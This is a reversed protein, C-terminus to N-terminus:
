NGNGKKKETATSDSGLGLMELLDEVKSKTRYIEFEVRRNLKMDNATREDVVIPKQSGYGVANIRDTSIGGRIFLYEKIADARKQSLALNMAADGSSDTHGSVNLNFNPNDLLFNIVKDLDPEMEPLIEAMGNEFEVSSFEIKSSMRETTGEFDTDGELFFLEEIRFFDDGQIVLLYNRENILDFDFTGDARLFKPAVEVGKDLDIVSVIGKMPAGGADTLSGSFRTTAEPQGGMPLPFSFLDLNKMSEEESRSYYINSSESNISFYFETGPGNVLPGINVPESWRNADVKNSKYIDYDGFNLIHGNSSFYLVNFKPHFFPSVENGRSNIIPGLNQPIVWQDKSNQYTYYIDALGFGNGRDSSFYLTDENHSLTPHSDWGDSNVWGGMNEPESWATDGQYHSTYLDCNGFSDPAECRSFFLTKGNKTLTASGENYKTNINEMAEAAKWYKEKRAMFLDENVQTNIGDSLSNRNSTFILLSDNVAISPAYDEDRSNISRGMSMLVGRAPRLTDVQKRFEVLEYYYDLPVYNSKSTGNIEEYRKTIAEIDLGERHHKLVIRYFPKAAEKSVLEETLKALRWVLYTQYAFNRMGFNNVYERLLPYLEEWKEQRDLMRINDLKKQDHYYVLADYSPKRINPFDLQIVEIANSDSKSALKQVKRKKFLQAEATSFCCVLLLLVFRGRITM